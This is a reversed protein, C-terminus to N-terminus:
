FCGFRLSRANHLTSRPSSRDAADQWPKIARAKDRLLRYEASQQAKQEKWGDDNPESVVGAKYLAAHLIGFLADLTLIANISRRLDGRDAIALRANEEAVEDFYQRPTM